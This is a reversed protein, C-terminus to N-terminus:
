KGGGIKVCYGFVGFTADNKGSLDLDLFSIENVVPASIDVVVTLVLAVFLLATGIYHVATGFGM